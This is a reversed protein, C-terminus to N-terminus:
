GNSTFNNGTTNNININYYSFAGTPAISTNEYFSNGTISWITSNAGINIGYSTAGANIFNYINNNSITNNSNSFSASGSSYIINYPRTGANTLNCHDITNTSNGVGATASSFFIVGGSTNISSGKINSYKVINNAATNIFTITQPQLVQTQIQFPLTLQQVLRM